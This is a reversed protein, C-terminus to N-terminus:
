FREALRDAYPRFHSLDHTKITHYAQDLLDHSESLDGVGFHGEVRLLTQGTRFYPNDGAEVRLLPLAAAPRGIGILAKAKEVECIRRSLPNESHEAVQHAQEFLVLGSTIAGELMLLEGLWGLIWSEIGQQRALPLLARFRELGRKPILEGGRLSAAHASFIKARLWFRESCSSESVMDLARNAVQGMEGFREQDSLFHAHETYIEALLLRGSASRAALTWAQAELMMLNLEMTRAQMLSYRDRTVEEFRQRLAELSLNASPSPQSFRGVTLAIIEEEHAELVYCLTHLQSVSPYVEAKEWRRLTWSTMGMQAAVTDLSLRRRMRMGRLLDGGHPMEGIGLHEGIRAIEKQVQVRARPSEMLSLAQRKQNASAELVTLVSELESLRPQNVGTEWRNLTVRGIGATQAARELTLGRTKRLQRLFTGIQNRKVVSM